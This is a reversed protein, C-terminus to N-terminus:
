QAEQNDKEDSQPLAFIQAPYILDPDSIRAQNRRVIDLYRIGDGYTRYAIRWLMDGKEIVVMDSGDRGIDLQAFDFEIQRTALVEADEGILQSTLRAARVGFGSTDIQATWNGTQDSMRATFPADNLAGRVSVGGASTGKIQLVDDSAWSLTLLQLLAPEVLLAAVEPTLQEAASSSTDAAPDSKQAVALEEPAQILEAEAQDTMPVLAVLPKDEGSAALDVVIARDARILQGDATRLEVIILHKGPSLPEEAIAVWDGSPSVSTEALTRDQEFIQVNAEASGRGAFVASGDPGIRVVEIQLVAAARDPEADSGAPAAPAASSTATSDEADQQGEKADSSATGESDEKSSATSTQASSPMQAQDSVIPTTSSPAPGQTSYFAWVLALAALGGGVVLLGAIILRM